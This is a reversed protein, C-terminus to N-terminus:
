LPLYYLHNYHRNEAEPPKLLVPLVFPLKAYSLVTMVDVFWM